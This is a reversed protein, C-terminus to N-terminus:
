HKYARDLPDEKSKAMEREAEIGTIKDRVAGADSAEPAALLYFKLDRIAGDYDGRKEKLLGRNFFATSWYPAVQLAADVEGTVLGYDQASSANKLMAQARVLHKRADDPIGHDLSRAARISKEMLRQEKEDGSPMKALARAYGDLADRHRGAEEAEDADKEWKALNPLSAQYAARAGYGNPKVGVPDAGHQVLIDILEKKGEDDAIM